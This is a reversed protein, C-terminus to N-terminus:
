KVLLMKKTDSFNSATVRYFYVGTALPSGEDDRGDFEFRHVGVSLSGDVMTRVRRGLINFVEVQVPGAQPLSLEIITSPNFPNPYNQALYYETPLNPEGGNDDIDTIAKVVVSGSRFIPYIVANDAPTLTFRTLYSVGVTDSDVFITGDPAGADVTFYLTAIPGSGSPMPVGSAFEIKAYLQHLSVFPQITKSPATLCRTDVFSISDIQAVNRENFAYVNVAVPDGPAANVDAVWISDYTAPTEVITLLGPIFFPYFTQPSSFTRLRTSHQIPGAVWLGSDILVSQPTITQSYSLYLNGMLGSGASIPTGVALAWIAVRNSDTNILVERTYVGDDLRGGAFSFSDIKVQDSYQRLTVEIYGLQEDNYFTIPVVGVGSVFAAISDVRVTDRIGPDTDAHLPVVTGILLLASIFYVTKTLRM